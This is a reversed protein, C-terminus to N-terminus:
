NFGTYMWLAYKLMVLCTVSQWECRTTSHQTTYDHSLVKKLRLEYDTASWERHEFTEKTESRVECLGSRTEGVYVSPKRNVNMQATGHNLRNTSPRDGFLGFNLVLINQTHNGTYYTASLCTKRRTSRKGGTVTM